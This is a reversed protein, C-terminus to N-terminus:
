LDLDFHLVEERTGLKTYLAIAPEDEYDAQVFTVYIGRERAVRGLERLARTAVGRRRYDEAVALDYVYFESREQEFKPLVYGALGGIVEGEAFVAVAVFTPSALLAELYADSPPLGGYTAADDFARGFVALLGRMAPVDGSELTRTRFEETM